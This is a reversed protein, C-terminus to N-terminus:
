KQTNRYVSVRTKEIYEKEGDSNAIFFGISHVQSIMGHEHTDDDEADLIEVYEMTDNWVTTNEFVDPNKYVNLTGLFAEIRNKIKLLLGNWIEKDESDQIQRTAANFRDITKCLANFMKYLDSLAGKFFSKRLSGITATLEEDQNYLERSDEVLSERATQMLEVDDDSITSESEDPQIDSTGYLSLEDHLRSIHGRVSSNLKNEVETIRDELKLAKLLEAIIRKETSLIWKSYTYLETVGPQVSDSLAVDTLAKKLRYIPTLTSLTIVSDSHSAMKLCARFNCPPVRGLKEDTEGNVSKNILDLASAISNFWDKAIESETPNQYLGIVDFEKKTWDSKTILDNYETSFTQFEFAGRRVILIAERLKGLTAELKSQTEVHNKFEESALIGDLIEQLDKVRVAPIKKLAQAAEKENESDCLPSDQCSDSTDNQNETKEDEAEQEEAAKSTEADSNEPVEAKDAAELGEQVGSESGTAEATDTVVTNAPTDAPAGALTDAPVAGRDESVTEATVAANEAKEEPSEVEPNSKNPSVPIGVKEGPTLSAQLASVPQKNNRNKKSM